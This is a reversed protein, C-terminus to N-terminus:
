LDRIGAFERESRTLEFAAAIMQRYEPTLTVGRRRMVEAMTALAREPDHLTLKPPAGWSFSPFWKSGLLASGGYLNAAAGVVAGTDFLTGIGTKAHDGILAGVKQEGTDVLSGERWIKVTGYTNKLDSNTTMAGLNVWEGVYAHGIFGDHYKNAYGHFIAAEIEGSVRCQPGITTGARIRGGMVQTRAGIALPGELRTLGAVRAERGLLIPGARLDLVAGPEIVAGPALVLPSDGVAHVGAPPSAARSDIRAMDARIVEANWLPLEWLERVCAPAAVHEVPVRLMGPDLLWGNAELNTALGQVLDPRIRAAVLEDGNMYVGPGSDDGLLARLADPDAVRGNVLLLPATGRGLDNVPRGTAAALHPALHPRCVLAAEGGFARECRERLGMIGLRLEFVPRTHTLPAFHRYAADEFVVLRERM